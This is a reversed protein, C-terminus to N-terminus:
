PRGLLSPQGSRPALYGSRAAHRLGKGALQGTKGYVFDVLANGVLNEAFLRMDLSQHARFM